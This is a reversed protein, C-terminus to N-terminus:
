LQYVGAKSENQPMESTKVGYNEALVWAIPLGHQRAEAVIQGSGGQGRAPRGDWVTILVDVHELLYRGAAEYAAPRTAQLPMEVIEDAQQLLTVTKKQSDPSFDSLYDALSLPLPVILRAQLIVFAREAVLQDAGEALSSYLTFPASFAGAITDLASDIGRMILDSDHLFRHGTVGISTM